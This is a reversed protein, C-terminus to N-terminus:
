PKTAVLYFTLNILGKETVEFGIWRMLRELTDPHLVHLHTEDGGYAHESLCCVSQIFIYGGKRLINYCQRLCCVYDPIHELTEVITILDFSEKRFPLLDGSAIVEPKVEYIVIDLGVTYPRVGAEALWEVITKELLRNHCGIDLVRRPKVELILKKLQERAILILGWGHKRSEQHCIKRIKEYSITPM